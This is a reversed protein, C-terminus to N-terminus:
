GHIECWAKQEKSNKWLLPGSGCFKEGGGNTFLVRGGYKAGGRNIYAARKVCM